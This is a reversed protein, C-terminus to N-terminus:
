NNFCVCETKAQKENNEFLIWHEFDKNPRAKGATICQEQSDYTQLNWIRPQTNTEPNNTMSVITFILFCKM